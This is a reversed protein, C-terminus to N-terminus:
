RARLGSIYARLRLQQDKLSQVDEPSTTGDVMATLLVQMEGLAEQGEDPPRNQETLLNRAEEETMTVTFQVAM